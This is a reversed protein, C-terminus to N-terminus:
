NIVFKFPTSYTGTNGALDKAKVRWYYDGTTSFSQQFSATSTNSSQLVSAFNITHSFEITYSITSQINGSDAPISWTFNIQQNSNYTADALPLSNVPANPINRDLYFNRSSFQTQSNTNVARVKWRYQADATLLASSLTLSTPTLNSQQNVISEGNSVNILEFSYTQAASLSQWNLIVSPNNTYFNDTPNALIVHQHTLDTTEIVSFNYNFTYNSNYASNEGRVRWQYEGQTMPISLSNQTVLSDIIIASSPSFVQIRYKGAGDIRNWQFDVINSSIEQNNVPAIVQVTDGSIDKEIIDDCSFLSIFSLFLLIKHLAKM